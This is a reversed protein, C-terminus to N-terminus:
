KWFREDWILFQLDLQMLQDDLRAQRDELESRQDLDELVTEPSASGSSNILSLQQRLRAQEALLRGYSSSLQRMRVAEREASIRLRNRLFELRQEADEIDELGVIDTLDIQKNAGSFISIEDATFGQENRSSYITPLGLSFNFQPWQQFKVQRLRLWAGELQVAELNLALKGFDEGVKILHARSAYSIRPMDDRPIWNGGPTNLLSNFQMRMQVKRRLHADEALRIEELAQGIDEYPMQLLAERKLALQRDTKLLGQFLHFARYLEIYARRKDLENAWIARERQLAAAYLQGHLRVPNPVRLSAVLSVNLDDSEFDSLGAINTGLNVFSGLQPVMSKWIRSKQKKANELALQSQRLSMNDRLMRAHAEKWSIAQGPVKDYDALLQNFQKQQAASHDGLRQGVKSDIGCGCLLIGLTTLFAAYARM